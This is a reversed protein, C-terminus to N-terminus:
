DNTSKKNNKIDILNKEVDNLTIEQLIILAKDNLMKFLESIYESMGSAIMCESYIDGSHWKAEILPINIADYVDKLTIESGPRSIIYGGNIGAKTTVLGMKKCKSMVKRIRVPNTCLNSSLEESSRSCGGHALCVLAHLAIIFESM